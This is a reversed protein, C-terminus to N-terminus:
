PDITIVGSAVFDSVNRTVVAMRHVIATAAILHDRFPGPNPIHLQTSRVAISVDISIIRGDFAPLVQENLWARLLGGKLQDKREAQLM